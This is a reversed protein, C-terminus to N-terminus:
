HVHGGDHVPFGAMTKLGLVFITALIVFPILFGGTVIWGQGGGSDIPAHQTLTGRKRLAAWAILIWMIVAVVCFTIYVFWSLSSIERAAPGAPQMTNLPSCHAALPALLTPFILRARM